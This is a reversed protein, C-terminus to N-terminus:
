HLRMPVIVLGLLLDLAFKKDKESGSNVIDTVRKLTKKYLKSIDKKNFLYYKDELIFDGGFQLLYSEMEMKKVEEESYGIYPSKNKM